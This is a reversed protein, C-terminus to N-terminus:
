RRQGRNLGIAVYIPRSTVQGDRIKVHIADVFIVPYVAELPRNCWETMEAILKDTIRSITDNSVKAGYVEDFHAAVEGTTLGKTTM